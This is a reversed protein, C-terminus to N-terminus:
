VAYLFALSFQEGEAPEVYESGELKAFLVLCLQHYYAYLRIHLPNTDVRRHEGVEDGDVMAEAYLPALCIRLELCVYALEGLPLGETGFRHLAASAPPLLYLECNM